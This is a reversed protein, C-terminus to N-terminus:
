IDVYDWVDFPHAACFAKFGAESDAHVISEFNGWVRGYVPHSAEFDSVWIFGDEQIEGSITWGSPHTRSPRRDSVRTDSETVYDVSLTQAMGQADFTQEFM